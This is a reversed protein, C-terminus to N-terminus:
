RPKKAVSFDTAVITTGDELTIIMRGTVKDWRIMVNNENIWDTINLGDVKM